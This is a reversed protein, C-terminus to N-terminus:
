YAIALCASTIPILFPRTFFSQDLRKAGIPVSAFIFIVLSDGSIFYDGILLDDDFRRVDGDETFVIEVSPTGVPENLVVNTVLDTHSVVRWAGLIQKGPLQDESLFANQCSALLM